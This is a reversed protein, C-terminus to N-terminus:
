IQVPEAHLDDDAVTKDELLLQPEKPLVHEDALLAIPPRQLPRANYTDRITTAVTAVLAEGGTIALSTTMGVLAAVGGAFMPGYAATATATTNSIIRCTASVAIEAGSGLLRGAGMGLLQGATDIAVSLASNTISGVAVLSTYTAAGAVTGAMTGLQSIRLSPM